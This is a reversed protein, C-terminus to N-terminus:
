AAALRGGAGDAEDTCLPPVVKEEMLFGGGKDLETVAFRNPCFTAWAQAKDGWFILGDADVPINSASLGGGLASGEVFVVAEMETGETATLAVVSEGPGAAGLCSSSKRETAVGGQRM